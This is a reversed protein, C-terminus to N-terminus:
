QRPGLTRNQADPRSVITVQGLRLHDSRRLMDGPGPSVFLYGVGTVPYWEFCWLFECLTTPSNVIDFATSVIAGARDWRILRASTGSLSISYCCRRHQRACIETAYAVHQGFAEEATNHEPAYAKSVDPHLVFEWKGRESPSISSPPDRFFDLNHNRKIEFFLAARRMLTHASYRRPSSEVKVEALHEVSYCCVDPKLSGLMGHAQDPHYATIRFAHGTCYPSGGVAGLSQM